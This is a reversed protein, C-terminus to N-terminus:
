GRKAAVGLEAVDGELYWDYPSDGSILVREFAALARLVYPVAITAEDDQFVTRFLQWIPGGRGAARAARGGATCGSSSRAPDRVDAGAAQEELTRLRPTAWTLTTAYAVNALSMSGRSHSEGTSGLGMARGDTFAKSQKHCTACSMTQNRRSAGM